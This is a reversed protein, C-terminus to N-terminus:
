RHPRAYDWLYWGPMVEQILLIESGYASPSPPKGKPYWVVGRMVPQGGADGVWVIMGNGSDTTPVVRGVSYLGAVHRAGVVGRHPFGAGAATTAVRELESRSVALRAVLPLDTMTGALATLLLLVAGVTRVSTTRTRLWGRSTTLGVVKFLVVMGGALLFGRGVITSLPTGGPMSAGHWAAATAVTLIVYTRWHPPRTSALKFRGRLTYRSLDREHARADGKAWGCEPCGGAFRHELSYGCSPCRGQKVRAVKSRRTYLLYVIAAPIVVGGVLVSFTITAAVFEFSEMGAVDFRWHRRDILRPPSSRDDYVLEYYALHDNAIPGTQVTLFLLPTGDEGTLEYADIGARVDPFGVGYSGEVLGSTSQVLDVLGRCRQEDIAPVIGSPAIVKRDVWDKRWAAPDVPISVLRIAGDGDRRTVFVAPDFAGAGAFSPVATDPPFTVEIHGRLRTSRLVLPSVGPPSLVYGWYLQCVVAAVVAGALLSGGSAALLITWWRSPLMRATRRLLRM